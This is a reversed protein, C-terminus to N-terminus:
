IAAILLYTEFSGVAEMKLINKQGSFVPYEKTWFVSTDLDDSPKYSGTDVLSCPTVDHFVTM